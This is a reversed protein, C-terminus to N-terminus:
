KESPLDRYLPPPIVLERTNEIRGARGRGPMTQLGNVGEYIAHAVEAAAEANDRQIYRLIRELDDAAEPSWRVEM